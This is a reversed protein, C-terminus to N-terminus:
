ATFSYERLLRLGEEESLWPRRRRIRGAETRLRSSAHHPDLDELYALQNRRAVELQRSAWRARNMYALEEICQVSHAYWVVHWM